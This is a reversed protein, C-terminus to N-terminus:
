EVHVVLGKLYESEPHYINIPHDLPQSLQHLIKVSRGTNASAAFVSRRFMEPSVVQSCSFTFLIGGPKIQSIAQANLRKYGQLANHIVDNHKAFAPPDLIIVDYKNEIEQLFDFADVSFSKHNDIKGFNLEINKDTLEIAKKSSDVSHVINAGGHVAYVSFGGTYGFVNLVDKNKCYKSLLLRNDRQDIFFGTKQGEEWNINFKLNNELVINENSKGFIYRDANEIKYKSPLTSQSKLYIAKLNDSFINKLIDAFTEINQYMGLSHCQIVATDYYIDIILGPLEDGEAHILRYVNTNSNIINLNKRYNYANNIRKNWFNFDITEEKFSLIRIAITGDQYHGTGLFEDKNDYVNVIGGESPIGYIKKIAGSFVWPHLRRVSQDKGSKLVIKPINM